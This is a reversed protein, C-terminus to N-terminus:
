SDQPGTNRRTWLFGGALCLASGLILHASWSEGPVVVDLLRFIGLLLLVLVVILCIAALLGYVVGRSATLAPQTTVARIRDVVEVVRDTASVAWDHEEDPTGSEPGTGTPDPM